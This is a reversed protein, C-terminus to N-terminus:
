RAGGNSARGGVAPDSADKVSQSLCERSIHQKDHVHICTKLALTEVRKLRVDIREMSRVLRAEIQGMDKVTYVEMGLVATLVAPAAWKQTRKPARNKKSKNTETM